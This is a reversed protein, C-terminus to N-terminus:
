ASAKAKPTPSAAIEVSVVDIVGALTPWQGMQGMVIAKDSVPGSHSPETVGILTIQKVGAVAALHSVGSDNCIVLASRQALAAFGGLNLPAVLTANPALAQAQAVEKPPPCIVLQHGMELLAKSLSAFHPWVKVQGKHLGTATPALLIFPKGSLNAAELSQSAALDDNASVTLTVSPPYTPPAPLAWRTASERVLHWWKQSAHLGADPKPVPWKLLLSRGDHRHGASDFGAFRFLAASSLSDPLILGHTVPRQPSRFQTIAKLDARFSGSLSVFASPNFQQVLPKAWPRAFIVLEHGQDVLWQLCPLSMCVDGVWNPLRVAIVFTPDNVSMARLTFWNQDTAFDRVSHDSRDKRKFRYLKHQGFTLM